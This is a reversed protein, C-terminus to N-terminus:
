DCDGVELVGIRLKRVISSLGPCVGSSCCGCDITFEAEDSSLKEMADDLSMDQVVIDACDWEVISILCGFGDLRYHAFMISRVGLITHKSEHLTQPLVSPSTLPDLLNCACSSLVSANQEESVPVANAHRWSNNFGRGLSKNSLGFPCFSPRCNPSSLFEISEHRRLCQHRLCSESTNSPTACQHAFM